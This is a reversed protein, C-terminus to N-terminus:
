ILHCALRSDMVKEKAVSILSIPGLWNKKYPHLKFLCLRWYLSLCSQEPPLLFTFVNPLCGVYGLPARFPGRSLLFGKDQGSDQSLPRTRQCRVIVNLCEYSLINRDHDLRVPFSLSELIYKMEDIWTLNNYRLFLFTGQSSYSDARGQKLSVQTNATTATKTLSTVQEGISSGKQILALMGYTDRHVGAIISKGYPHCGSEGQRYRACSRRPKEPPM